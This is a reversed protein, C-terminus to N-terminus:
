AKRNRMVRVASLGFPLLLMAGAVMTTPEPVITDTMYATLNAQVLPQGEYYEVLLTHSGATLFTSGFLASPGHEGGNNVVLNGDIYLASGDDSFTGFSYNGATVSFTTTIRAVFNQQGFPYWQDFGPGSENGSPTLANYGAFKTSPVWTASGFVTSPVGSINPTGDGNYGAVGAGISWSGTLAADAQWAALALVASLVLLIKKM